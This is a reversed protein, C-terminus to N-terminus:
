VALGCNTLGLYFWGGQGDGHLARTERATKHTGRLVTRVGGDAVM